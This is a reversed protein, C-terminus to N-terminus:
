LSQVEEMSKISFAQQLAPDASGQLWKNGTRLAEPTIKSSPPWAEASSGWAVKIEKTYLVSHFNNCVISLPYGSFPTPMGTMGHSLPQPLFIAMELTAQVIHHFVTWLIPISLNAKSVNNHLYSSRLEFQWCGHIFDPCLLACKYVGASLCLFSPGPPESTLACLGDTFELNLSPDQRLFLTYLAIPSLVYVEGGCACVCLKRFLTPLLPLSFCFSFSLNLLTTYLDSTIYNLAMRMRFVRLNLDLFTLFSDQQFSRVVM